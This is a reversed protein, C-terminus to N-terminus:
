PHYLWAGKLGVEALMEAASKGSEPHRLDPALDALPALVFVREALMPHPITLEQSKYVLEDYFLIDMDILRPGYRASPMRGIKEEIEKLYTLLSHPDLETEVRVVMNLFDPQNVIGWPETEFIPSRAVVQVKPELERLTRELNAQRDGLNTGLSIYAAAV